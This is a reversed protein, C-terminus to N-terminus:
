ALNNKQIFEKADSIVDAYSGGTEVATILKVLHELFEPAANRLKEQDGFNKRLKQETQTAQSIAFDRDPDNEPIHNVADWMESIGREMNEKTILQTKPM